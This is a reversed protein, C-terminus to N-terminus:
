DKVNIVKMSAMEQDEDGKRELIVINRSIDKLKHLESGALEAGDVAHVRTRRALFVDLDARPMKAVDLQGSGDEVDTLAVKATDANVHLQREWTENDLDLLNKLRHAVATAQDESVGYTKRTFVLKEPM